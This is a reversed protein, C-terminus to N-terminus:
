DVVSLRNNVAIVGPAAWAAHEAQRLEHLSNVTGTLEVTGDPEASVIIRKAEVRANRILAATIASKTDAVSVHPMLIIMNVVATVGPLYAVSRHAAERQYQWEVTGTLTIIHQHVSAQVTDPVDVALELMQSAQRAIDTDSPAGWDRHVEIENAIARVGPIRLAAKEALGKEPYADVEGSLTVVGDIVAVGIKEANVSPTWNLETGVARQLVQDEKSRREITTMATIIGVQQNDIVPDFTGVTAPALCIESNPV